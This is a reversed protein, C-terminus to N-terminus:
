HSQGASMAYRNCVEMVRGDEFYCTVKEGVERGEWRSSQYAVQGNQYFWSIDGHVANNKYDAVMKQNGNQWYLITVGHYKGLKIERKSHESIATGSFPNSEGIKYFLGNRKELLKAQVSQEAYVNAAVLLLFVSLKKM